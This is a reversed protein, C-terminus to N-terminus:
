LEKQDSPYLGYDAEKKDGASHVFHFEPTSWNADYSWKTEQIYILDLSADIAYTVLERFVQAHLGGANWTLTRLAKTNTHPRVPTGVPRTTIQVPRYWSHPRWIGKYFAGGQRCSRAYARRYSRKAARPLDYTNGPQLAERYGVHKATVAESTRTPDVDVRVDASASNVPVVHLWLILGALIPVVSTRTSGVRARDSKPGVRGNLSKEFSGATIVRLMLAILFSLMLGVQNLTAWTGSLSRISAYLLFIHEALHRVAFIPQSPPRVRWLSSRGDDGRPLDRDYGPQLSAPHRTSASILGYIQSVPLMAVKYWKRLILIVFVDRRPQRNFVTVHTNIAADCLRFTSDLLGSATHTEGTFFLYRALRHTYFHMAVGQVFEIESSTAPPSKHLQAGGNDIMMMRLLDTGPARCNVRNRHVHSLRNRQISESSLVQKGLEILDQGGSHYPLNPVHQPRVVFLLIPLCASCYPRPKRNKPKAAAVSLTWPATSSPEPNRSSSATGSISSTGSGHHGDGHETAGGAPVDVPGTDEEEFNLVNPHFSDTPTLPRIQVTIADLYEWQGPLLTLVERLYGGQELFAQGIANSLALSMDRHEEHIPRAPPPGRPLPTGNPTTPTPRPPSDAGGRDAGRNREIVESDSSRDGMTKPCSGCVECCCWSFGTRAWFFTLYLCLQLGHQLASTLWHTFWLAIATYMPLLRLLLTSVHMPCQADCPTRSRPDLLLRHLACVFRTLKSRSRRRRRRCSPRPTTSRLRWRRGTKGQCITHPLPRLSRLRTWATLTWHSHESQAATHGSTPCGVHFICTVGSTCSTKKRHFDPSVRLRSRDGQTHLTLGSWIGTQFGASTSLIDELLDLPLWCPKEWRLTSNSDRDPGASYSERTSQRVQCISKTTIRFGSTKHTIQAWGTVCASLSLILFWM